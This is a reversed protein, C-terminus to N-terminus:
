YKNSIKDLHSLVKNQWKYFSLEKQKRIKANKFEFFIFIGCLILFSVFFIM